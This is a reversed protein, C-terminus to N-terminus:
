AGIYAYIKQLVSCIKKNFINNQLQEYVIGRKMICDYWMEFTFDLFLFLIKYMNVFSM